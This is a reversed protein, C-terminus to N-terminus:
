IELLKHNLNLEVLSIKLSMKENRFAETDIIATNPPEM